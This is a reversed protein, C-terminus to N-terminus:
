KASSRLVECLKGVETKLMASESGFTQRPEQQAQFESLRQRVKRLIGECLTGHLQVSTSSFNFQLVLFLRYGGRDSRSVAPAEVENSGACRSCKRCSALHHLYRDNELDSRDLRDTAQRLRPSAADFRTTGPQGAKLWFHRHHISFCEERPLHQPGLGASAQKSLVAVAQVAEGLIVNQWQCSSQRRIVGTRNFNLYTLRGSGCCAVTQQM